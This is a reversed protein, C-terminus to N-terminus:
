VCVDDDDVALHIQGEREEGWRIWLRDNIYLLLGVAAVCTVMKIVTTAEASTVAATVTATV